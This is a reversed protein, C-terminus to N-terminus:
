AAPQKLVSYAKPQAVGLAIPIRFCYDWANSTTHFAEVTMPRDAYHIAEKLNALVFHKGSPSSTTNLVGTSMPVIQYGLHRGYGNVIQEYTNNTDALALINAEETVDVYWKLDQTRFVPDIQGLMARTSTLSLHALNNASTGGLQTTQVYADNYLGTFPSGSGAFIQTDIALPITRSIEKNVYALVDYGNQNLQYDYLTVWAELYNVNVNLTYASVAGTSAMTGRATKGLWNTTGGSVSRSIALVDSALDGARFCDQIHGYSGVMPSIYPSYQVPVPVTVNNRIGDMLFSKFSNNMSAYDNKVEIVPEIKEAPVDKHDINKNASFYSELMNKLSEETVPKETNPVENKMEDSMTNDFKITM